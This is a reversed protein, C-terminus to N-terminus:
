LVTSSGPVLATLKAAGEVWPAVIKEVRWDAFPWSSAESFGMRLRAPHTGLPQVQGGFLAAAWTGRM